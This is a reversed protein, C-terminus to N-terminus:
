AAGAVAAAKRLEGLTISVGAFSFVVMADGSSALWERYVPAMPQANVIEEAVRLFPECATLANAAEAMAHRAYRVADNNRPDRLMDRAAILRAVVADAAGIMVPQGDELPECMRAVQLEGIV